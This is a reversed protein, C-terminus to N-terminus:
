RPSSASSGKFNLRLGKWRDLAHPGKEIEGLGGLSSQARHPAAWHM